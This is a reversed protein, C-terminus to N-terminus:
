IHILSLSATADDLAGQGSTKAANEVNRLRIIAVRSFYSGRGVSKDQNLVATLADMTEPKYTEGELIHPAVDNVVAQSAIVPVAAALWGISVLAFAATVLRAILHGNPHFGLM